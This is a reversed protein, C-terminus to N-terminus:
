EREVEVVADILLVHLAVTGAAIVVFAAALLLLALFSILSSFVTVSTATKKTM